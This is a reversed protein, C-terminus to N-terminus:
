DGEFNIGDFPLQSDEYKPESEVLYIVEDILNSRLATNIMQDSSGGERPKSSFYVTYHAEPNVAKLLAGNAIAKKVSDTRKAGPRKKNGEYGGKAEIYRGVALFDIEVGAGPIFVNKQIDTLGLNTLEEFVRDEFDGGSKKSESQFNM